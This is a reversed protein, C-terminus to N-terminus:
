YVVCQGLLVLCSLSPSLWPCAGGDIKYKDARLAICANVTAVGCNTGHPTNSMVEGNVNEVHRSGSFSVVNGNPLIEYTQMGVPAALCVSNVSISKHLM